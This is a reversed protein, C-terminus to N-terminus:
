AISAARKRSILHDVSFRGSGSLMLCILMVIYYFPIEFGNNGAAFGNEWHVTKIAVLMTAILPVAIIRTGLGITLLIVGATETLTALWAQMYPAPLSISEFWEGIAHVDQLKNWAPEWFGYALVLRLMLPAFDRMSDLTGAYKAYLGKLSM